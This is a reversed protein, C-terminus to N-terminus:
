GRFTFRGLSKWPGGLYRHLSLAAIMLPRDRHASALENLLARAVKAEVKNQVTVHARFGHADQASLSGHFRGALRERLEDLEHSLIRFAVGNGLSYPASLTARLAAGRAEDRLAAAVEGELSPPLAHFLTLHATLQNREPPFHARRLSDLRVLDAGGLDATVILAGSM